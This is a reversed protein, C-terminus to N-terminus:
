GIKLNYSCTLLVGEADPRDVFSPGAARNSGLVRVGGTGGWIVDERIPRHMVADIATYMAMARDEANESTRVGATRSADAAIVIRLRPFLATSEDYYWFGMSVVSAKVLGNGDVDGPLKHKAVTGLSTISSHTKLERAVATIVNM